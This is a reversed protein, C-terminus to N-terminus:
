KLIQLQFGDREKGKIEKRTVLDITTGSNIIMAMTRHRSKSPRIVSIKLPSDVHKRFSDEMALTVHKLPRDKITIDPNIIDLKYLEGNKKWHKLPEEGIYGQHKLEKKNIEQETIAIEVIETQDSTKIKTVKKYITIEDGEIRIGGKMSRLFNAGILIEIGNSDHMDFAYILPIKLKNGEILFSGQKLRHTAQEIEEEKKEQLQAKLKRKEEDKQEELRVQKAKLQDIIKLADTLDRILMSREYQWLEEKKQMAIKGEYYEVVQDKIMQQVQETKEKLLEKFLKVENSSFKKEEKSKHPQKGKVNVTKGLYNRACLACTTLQCKLCNLRSMDTTIIGYYYCITYNTVTNEKWDHECEERLRYNKAQNGHDSLSSWTKEKHYVIFTATMLIQQSLTGTTKLTSNKIFLQDQLTEKNAEAIKQLIGCKQSSLIPSSSQLYFEQTLVLTNPRSSEEIKKSLSPPLKAFLKEITSPFYLKGSKIGLHKFDKLFSWSNKTEECTIKDLDRYARDQEDTSGRYPDEMLILQRVQSTINQPDDAITELASYANPYTTQWQQWMLKESEGLLNKVFALKAKNDSWTQNNIRNITISEWRSIVKLWLVLDVPLVLM